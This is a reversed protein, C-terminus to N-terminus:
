FSNSKDCDEEQLQLFVPSLSLLSNLLVFFQGVLHRNGLLRRIGRVQTSLGHQITFPRPNFDLESWRFSIVVVKRYPTFIISDQVKKLTRYLDLVVAPRNCANFTNLNTRFSDTSRKGM